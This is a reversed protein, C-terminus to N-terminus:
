GAAVAATWEEAALLCIREVAAVQAKGPKPPLSMRIAKRNWGTMAKYVPDPDPTQGDLPDIALSNDGVALRRLSDTPAPAPKALIGEKVADELVNPAYVSLGGDDMAQLAFVQKRYMGDPVFCRLIGPGGIKAPPPALTTLLCAFRRWRSAAARGHKQTMALLQREIAARDKQGFHHLLSRFSM